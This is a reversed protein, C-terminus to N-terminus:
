TLQAVNSPHLPVGHANAYTLAPLNRTSGVSQIHLLDPETTRHINEFLFQNEFSFEGDTDTIYLLSESWCYPLIGFHANRGVGKSM